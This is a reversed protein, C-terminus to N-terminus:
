SFKLHQTILNTLRHDSLTKYLIYFYEINLISSFISCSSPSRVWSWLCLVIQIKKSASLYLAIRWNLNSITSVFQLKQSFFQYTFKTNHNFISIIIFSDSLNVSAQSLKRYARSRKVISHLSFNYIKCGRM